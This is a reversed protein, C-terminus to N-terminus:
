RQFVGMKCVPCNSSIGQQQLWRIICQDHFHHACPLTRINDGEKLADLCIICVEPCDRTGEPCSETKAVCADKSTPKKYKHIPITDILAQSLTPHAPPPAELEDDLGLLMEYDIFM